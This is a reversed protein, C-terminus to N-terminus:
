KVVGYQARLEEIRKEMNEGLSVTTGNSRSAIIASGGSLHSVVLGATRKYTESELYAGIVTRANEITKETMHLLTHNRVMERLGADEVKVMEAVVADLGDAFIKEAQKSIETRLQSVITNLETNDQKLQAIITKSNEGENYQAIIADRVAVPLATIQDPTMQALLETNLMQPKDENSMHSTIKFPRQIKLAAREIPALDLSELTFGNPNIKYTGSQHNVTIADDGTFGYISTAIGRKTAKSVRVFHRVDSNPLIYGKAWLINGVFQATLWQVAPIDFVSGRDESKLHGLNGTSRKVM